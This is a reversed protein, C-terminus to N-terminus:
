LGQFILISYRVLKLDLRGIIGPRCSAVILRSKKSRIPAISNKFRQEPIARKVAPSEEPRKGRKGNETQILRLRSAVKTSNLGLRNVLLTIVLILMEFMSKTAASMQTGDHVVARAKEITAQIDINEIKMRNTEQTM